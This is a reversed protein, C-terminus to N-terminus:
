KKIKKYIAVILVGVLFFYFINLIKMFIIGFTFAGLSEYGIGTHFIADLIFGTAAYFIFLPISIILIPANIIESIIHGTPSTLNLDLFPNIIYNLLLYITSCIIGGSIYSIYKKINKM